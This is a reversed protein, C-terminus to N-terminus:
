KCLCNMMDKITSLIDERNMFFLLQCIFESDISICNEEWDDNVNFLRKIVNSIYGYERKSEKLTNVAYDSLINGDNDFYININKTKDQIKGDNLFFMANYLSESLQEIWEKQTKGNYLKQM